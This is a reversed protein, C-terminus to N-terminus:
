MDAVQDSGIPQFMTFFRLLIIDAHCFTLYVHPGNFMSCQVIVMSCQDRTNIKNVDNKKKYIYGLSICSTNDKKNQIYIKEINFFFDISLAIYAVLSARNFYRGPQACSFITDYFTYQQQFLSICTFQHHKLPGKGCSRHLYRKTMNTWFIYVVLHHYFERINKWLDLRYM